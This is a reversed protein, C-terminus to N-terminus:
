EPLFTKNIIEIIQNKVDNFDKEELDVEEKAVKELMEGTIIEYVEKNWCIVYGSLELWALGLGETKGYSQHKRPFIFLTRGGDSFLLNHPIERELLINTITGALFSISNYQDIIDADQKNATIVFARVFYDKLEFV